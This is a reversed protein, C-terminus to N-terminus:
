EVILKVLEGRQLTQGPAMGNLVRFREVAFTDFPTLAALESVTDGRRVKYIRVQYPRHRRAEATSLGDFSEAMRDLDRALSRSNGPQVGFFRYLAGDYRIVTLRATRVGKRTNFPLEAQAADLGNIRTRRLDSLRGIRTQQGIESAWTRSIYNTLRGGPDRAGDFIVGAGNPGAATVRSTSNTIKFNPPVTFMFRMEPHIFQRGRSFGQQASDGYTMGSIADLYRARHRPANEGDKLGERRAAGVAERVRKATAPHSGFFDVRNPDYESGAIKAQLASTAQLSELFDAGALPDYGSKAIYRIGLTDAEFEQGRSYNAVYGQGVVGGLQGIAGVADRDLGAAAGLLTAGLIGLQAITAREQRKSGHAGTVHGIEHGIVGALEAEDNALAILGRTVYIYGGPLAFANVVPSDLVTFTWKENPQESKSALTQGLNRVYARIAPDAVEGGFQALIKPHNEDGVRQDSGSREVVTRPANASGAAACSALTFTGIALAAARILPAKIM